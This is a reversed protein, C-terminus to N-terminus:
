DSSGGDSDPLADCVQRPPTGVCGYRPDTAARPCDSTFNCAKYCKGESDCLNGDGCVGDVLCFKTCQGGPDDSVCVLGVVCDADRICSLGLGHRPAEGGCSGITVVLALLLCVKASVSQSCQRVIGRM